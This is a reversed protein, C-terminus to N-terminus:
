AGNGCQCDPGFKWVWKVDGTASRVPGFVVRNCNRCRLTECRQEYQERRLVQLIERVEASSPPPAQRGLIDAILTRVARGGRVHQVFSADSSRSLRVDRTAVNAVPMVNSVLELM